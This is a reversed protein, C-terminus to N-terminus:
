GVARRQTDSTTRRAGPESKEIAAICDRIVIKELADDTWDGQGDKSRKSRRLRQVPSEDCLFDVRFGM